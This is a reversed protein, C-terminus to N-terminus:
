KTKDYIPPVYGVIATFIEGNPTFYDIIDGRKCLYQKINSYGKFLVPTEHILKIEGNVWKYQRTTYESIDEQSKILDITIEETIFIIEQKEDHFNKMVNIAQAYSSYYGINYQYSYKESMDINIKDLKIINIM